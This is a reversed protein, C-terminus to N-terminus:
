GTRVSGQAQRFDRPSAGYRAKFVRSFYAMDTFGARYAVTSIAEAQQAPDRLLCACAQLREGLLFRGFSLQEDQFLSNIYRPTVSFASAVKALSLDSDVLHLRIHRKIRYLLSTRHNTPQPVDKTREGLVMALLDLGQNALRRQADSNTHDELAALGALYDFALRAVPDKRSLTLATLREINCIRERLARYPIQLVTQSFTGSFQLEYPNRTDYLAFDGPELSAERGDQLVQARGQHALSVLVYEDDSRAICPPTRRVRQGAARVQVVTLDALSSVLLQGEFPELTTIRCELPVFTQCVVDQWYAQRQSPSVTHTDFTTTM